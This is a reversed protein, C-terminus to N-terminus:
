QKIHRSPFFVLVLILSAKRALLALPLVDLPLGDGCLGDCCVSGMVVFLAGDGCRRDIV